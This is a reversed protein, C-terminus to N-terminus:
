AEFISTKKVVVGEGRRGRGWREKLIWPHHVVAVAVEMARGKRKEGLL